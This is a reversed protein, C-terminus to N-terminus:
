FCQTEVINDISFEDLFTSKSEISTEQAILDLTKILNILFNQLCRRERILSAKLHEM